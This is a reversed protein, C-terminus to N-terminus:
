LLEVTQGQDSDTVIYGLVRFENRLTDSLEWDKATRAEARRKLLEKIEEPIVSVKTPRIDLNLGFVTDFDILTARKDADRISDDKLLEWVLALAQPTGIDNNLATTFREKYTTDVMGGTPLLSAAKQLKALATASATLAEWTFNAPTRYHATLFWYRLALPDINRAVVDELYVVNGESKAIKGGGLQIHERHLWFRSFPRRGTAAEAQAIENNHHVAIHEVGGTHIDIQKGLIALIMASCEIHWGPFGSGWPSDWGLKENKKWLAFDNPGRKETNAAIRAHTDGHTTGGLEGYTPFKSTEFYVGDKTEYAYGKEELTKILAVQAPIHDSARPFIIKETLVNLTAIDALYEDMYKTALEHMNEMTLAKGERRLGKTMRDEGQDADGENDGSLHGFDTINIVQKVTYGNYELARRLVDAFVAMGMNGIHQTAYVTPGCNYMRVEKGVPEFHQLERGLTNYLMLSNAPKKKLFFM